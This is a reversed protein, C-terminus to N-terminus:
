ATTEQQHRVLSIRCHILQCRLVRVVLLQPALIFEVCEGPDKWRLAALSEGGQERILVDGGEFM